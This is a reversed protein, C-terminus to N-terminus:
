CNRLRGVSAAWWRVEVVTCVQFMFQTLHCTEGVGWSLEFWFITLTFYKDCNGSVMQRSDGDLQRKSQKHHRGTGVRASDSIKVMEFECGSLKVKEFQHVFEKKLTEQLLSLYTRFLSYFNHWLFLPRYRMHINYVQCRVTSIWCRNFNAGLM